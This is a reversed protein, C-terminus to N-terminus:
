EKYINEEQCKKLFQKWYWNTKQSIAGQFDCIVKFEQFKNQWTVTKQESDNM